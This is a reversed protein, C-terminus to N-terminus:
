CLRRRSGSDPSGIFGVGDCLRRPGRAASSASMRQERSTGRAKMKSRAGEPVDDRSGLGRRRGGASAGTLPGAFAASGTSRPAENRGIGEATNRFKVLRRRGSRRQNTRARICAVHGRVLPASLHPVVTKTKANIETPASRLRHYHSTSIKQKSKLLYEHRRENVHLRTLSTDIWDRDMSHYLNAASNSRKAM